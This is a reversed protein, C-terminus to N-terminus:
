FGDRHYRQLPSSSQTLRGGVRRTQTFVIPDHQLRGDPICPSARTALQQHVHDTASGSREHNALVPLAVQGTHARMVPPPRRHSPRPLRPVCIHWASATCRSARLRDITASVGLFRSGPWDGDSASVRRSRCADNKCCLRAAGRGACVTWDSGTPQHPRGEQEPRRRARPDACIESRTVPLTIMRASSASARPKSSAHRLSAPPVITPDPFSAPRLGAGAASRRECRAISPGCSRGRSKLPAERRQPPTATSAQPFARGVVAVSSPPITQREFLARTHRASLDRGVVSM